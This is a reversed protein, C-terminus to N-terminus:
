SRLLGQFTPSQPFTLIGPVHYPFPFQRTHCSWFYTLHVISAGGRPGVEGRPGSLPRESAISWFIDSNGNVCTGAEGVYSTVRLYVRRQATRVPSPLNTIGWLSFSDYLGNSAYDRISIVLHLCTPAVDVSAFLFLSGKVGSVFSLSPCALYALTSFSICPAELFYSVYSARPKLVFVSDDLLYLLELATSLPAFCRGRHCASHSFHLCVLLSRLQM